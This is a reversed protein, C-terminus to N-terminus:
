DVGGEEAGGLLRRVTANMIYAKQSVYAVRGGIDVGGHHTHLEGLMAMLLSSKGGGTPGYVCTLQGGPITVSVGQLVPALAAEAVARPYQRYGSITCV